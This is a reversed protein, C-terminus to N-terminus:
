GHRSSGDPASVLPLTVTVLCGGQSQNELLLSGDHDHIVQEAITLGLGTGQGQPKTTFFPSTLHGTGSAPPLGPGDDRIRIVAKTEQRIWDIRVLRNAAQVANRLLNVLALELRQVDGECELSPGGETIEIAPGEGQYEYGLSQLSQRILDALLFRQVQTQQHRSFALLQQVMLTLRKVQGRVANLQRQSDEDLHRKALRQARGDIVSLPAGLEHAVGRAVQGIAAMKQEEKLQSQLQYEQRRRQSIEMEAQIISDLMQNLGGAIERIEAPGTLSARHRHDGMAVNRMSNVLDIVHRGIAHHHGFILIAVTALALTAWGALALRELKAFSKEFDSARRTIQLLGTVQGQENSIPMVYSYVSEGEVSRYDDQQERTRVVKEAIHSSSLDTETVGSFAVLKGRADFVSAGYVRGISFVSKLHNALASVNGASLAESVPLSIARGVLELDSRLKQNAMDKVFSLGFWSALGCVLLIPLVLYLLLLSQLSLRRLSSLRFSTNLKTM